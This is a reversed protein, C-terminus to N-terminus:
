KLASVLEELKHKMLEMTKAEVNLRVLPETNSKRVNFWWDSFEIRVGDLEDVSIASPAYVEKLRAIVGDKDEVEFNKEGSAFYLQRFPDALESLTKKKDSMIKLLLALTYDISELGHFEPYYFHCSIEGGMASKKNQVAEILNTRGVKVCEIVGGGSLIAEKVLWSTNPTWLVTQGPHRKLQEGILIAYIVDGPVVQGKEDVFGIRDGDGDPAVGIDANKSLVEAQLDMLTEM